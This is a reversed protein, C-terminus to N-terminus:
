LAVWSRALKLVRLLRLARFASIAGGTSPGSTGSYFLIVEITSLIVIVGDFINFRDACYGRIGLGILKLIMEIVFICYFTLNAYEITKVSEEDIPYRDTALFVTNLLICVTIFWLFVKHEM